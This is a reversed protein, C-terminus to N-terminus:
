NMLREIFYHYAYYLFGVCTIMFSFIMVDTPNINM